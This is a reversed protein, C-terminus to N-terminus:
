YFIWYCNELFYRNMSINLKIKPLFISEIFYENAKKFFFISEIFYENDLFISYRQRSPRVILNENTTPIIVFYLTKRQAMVTVSPQHEPGLQAINGAQNAICVYM